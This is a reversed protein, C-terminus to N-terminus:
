MRAVVRVQRCQRVLRPLGQGATGIAEVVDPGDDLLGGRMQVGAAPQQQLMAPVLGFGRASKERLSAPLVDLGALIQGAYFAAGARLFGSCGRQHMPAYRDSQRM